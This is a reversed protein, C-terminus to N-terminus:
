RGEACFAISAATAFSLLTPSCKSASNRAAKIAIRYTVLLVRTAQSHWKPNPEWYQRLQEQLSMKLSLLTLERSSTDRTSTHTHAM